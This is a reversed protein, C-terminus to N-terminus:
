KQVPSPELNYYGVTEKLYLAGDGEPNLPDFMPSGPTQIVASSYIGRTEEGALTGGMQIKYTRGKAFGPCSLVAVSYPRTNEAFFDDKSPDYAFIIDGKEDTLAITSESAPFYDSFLNITPQRSDPHAADKPSGFAVVTGGQIFAGCNGDLPADAPTAWVVATGGNIVVYGNSDIGDGERECLGSLIRVFGDNITIVSVSDESANIGDDVARILIDGGQITVHLDSSIGEQDGTLDLVGPGDINLSTYSYIAGDQKWLKKQKPKDKFIKAVHSGRVVNYGELILNSGAQSTDVTSSATKRSWNGDCEYTNQFLIAPAVTCTIDADSLILTVVAKPDYYAKKGLDVRIQGKSLKGTVRYTGPATINVVTHAAAEAASHREIPAGEGYLRGSPYTDKDQYYIIDHSTFVEKTEPGGNVTIGDDSLTIATEPQEAPREKIAAFTAFCGTFLVLCLLLALLQKM